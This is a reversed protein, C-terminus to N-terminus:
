YTGPLLRKNVLGSLHLVLGRLCALTPLPLVMARPHEFAFRRGVPTYAWVCIVGLNPRPTTQAREERGVYLEDLRPWGPLIFPLRNM